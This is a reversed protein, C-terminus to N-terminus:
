LNDVYESVYAFHLLNRVKNTNIKFKISLALFVNETYFDPM